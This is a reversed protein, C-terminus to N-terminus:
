GRPVRFGPPTILTSRLYLTLLALVSAAASLKVTQTASGGAAPRMKNAQQVKIVGRRRQSLLDRYTLSCVVVLQVVM